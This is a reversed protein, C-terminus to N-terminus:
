SCKKYESGIKQVVGCESRNLTMVLYFEGGQAAQSSDEFSMPFLLVTKYSYFKGLSIIFLQSEYKRSNVLNYTRSVDNMTIHIGDCDYPAAACGSLSLGLFVMLRTFSQIKM